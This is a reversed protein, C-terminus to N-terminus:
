QKAGGENTSFLQRLWALVRSIIGTKNRANADPASAALQEIEGKFQEAFALAFKPLLPKGMAEWMPAMPGEGHVQVHFTVETERPSLRRARYAGGGSVPDGDLTFTFDAEDPGAWREVHVAVKVTRVLAGVGVKLTWRSNDADQITCDVLGPMLGAWRNIDEAYGWVQAISANITVSQTTEIM